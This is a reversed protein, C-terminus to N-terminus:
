NGFRIASGQNYDMLIQQSTLAYNYIKVDDVQGATWGWTNGKGITLNRSSTIPNSISTCTGGTYPIDEVGNRYLRINAGERVVIWHEWAGVTVPHQSRCYTYTGSQHTLLHVYPDYMLTYGDTQSLGREVLTGGSDGAKFWTEITFDGSTFNLSSETGADIYDDTGDFSMASNYKGTVGNYWSSSANISACTGVANQNGSSGITIVGDNNNDSMDYATTGQCEDFKWYGVPKGRNYDWAIQAPTRAYNYIKVDDIFGSWPDESGYGRVGIALNRPVEANYYTISGPHSVPAQSVANIYKVINTGDFTVAVHYWEGVALSGSFPIEYAGINNIAVTFYLQTSNAYMGLAYGGPYTGDFTWKDLIRPYTFPAAIASAKVWAEVTIQEPRLSTSNNIAIYDNAGDFSMASGIKGTAWTPRYSSNGGGLTGTNGNGSSDNATTGIKEDFKWEGVPATCTATDGPICYSRDSSFSATGSANTSVAGMLVAAGRNYETKIEDDNLAFPYIKVEDILGNFYRPYSPSQYGITFLSTPSSAINGTVLVSTGVLIGNCYIRTYSGDYTNVIHSWTGISLGCGSSTNETGGPAYIGSYIESGSTLLVYSLTPEMKAVIAKYGSISNPKIWAEITIQNGTINLSAGNGADVYDDTGDFSLAKGFKGATSSAGYITGDNNNISNDYTTTGYGEDFKWYGVYSGLPSGVAPHGANMDEMIQKQTRAYNYIRVHQIKGDFAESAWAADGIRVAGTSILADTVNIASNKLVGNIYVRRTIRDYTQVVYQWVGAQIGATDLNVWGTPTTQFWARLTGDPEIDFFSGPTQVFCQREVSSIVDPKIWAAVTIAGTNLGPMSDINYYDVAALGASNNFDKARGISGAVLTPAGMVIGINNNGSSDLANGSAEDMKWYGVPGPAWNYLDSVEKPSLARNYIRVEDISGYFYNAGYAGHSGINTNGTTSAINGTVTKSNDLVGNIYIKYNNSGGNADYTTIIQTWQGYSLSSNAFLNIDSLGSWQVRPKRSTADAASSPFYVGGSPGVLVNKQQSPKQLLYVWAVVTKASIPNITSSGGVSVYDNNGDFSGGNGFKGATTTAGSSTGNNGAGSSDVVEEATGNWTTEDMKWYGVLGDSMWKQTKGGMSVSAASGGTGVAGALYDAKIQAETRAYNYIKVEDIFGNFYSYTAGSRRGIIWNNTYRAFTTATEGTTTKVLVGNIFLKISSGDYTAAIYTWSNLPIASLSTVNVSVDSNIYVGAMIKQDTGFKLGFGNYYKSLINFNNISPLSSPNIWASFSITPTAYGISSSNLVVVHDDSGDFKLCKGSVCMDETQWVPGSTLTGDNNNTSDDYTITGYGEDFRWYAVPGPGKEETGISGVTYSSAPISFDTLSFGNSASANGYYYYITQAGAPFNGFLVHAASNPNGCDSIYYDLLQGLNDTFRLDGCDAQFKTTDSTDITVSIYVNSEATTNNTAAISKRYYWSEDFWAAEVAQAKFFAFYGGILSIVVIGVVISSLIKKNNLLKCNGIKM